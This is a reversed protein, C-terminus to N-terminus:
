KDPKRAPLCFGTGSEQGQWRLRLDDPIPINSFDPCSNLTCELESLRGNFKKNIEDRARMAENAANVAKDHEIAMQEVREQFKHLESRLAANTRFWSAWSSGVVFLALALVILTSKNM